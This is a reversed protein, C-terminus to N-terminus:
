DYISILQVNNFIGVQFLTFGPPLVNVFKIHNIRAYCRILYFYYTYHCYRNRYFKNYKNSKNTSSFSNNQWPFTKVQFVPTCM